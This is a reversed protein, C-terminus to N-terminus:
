APNTPLNLHSYSVAGPKAFAVLKKNDFIETTQVEKWEGGIVTCGGVDDTDGIRTKFNTYPVRM